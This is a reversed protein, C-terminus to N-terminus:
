FVLGVSVTLAGNRASPVSLSDDSFAVDAGKASFLLEPQLAFDATPQYTLFGGGSFLLRAETGPEDDGYLKAANLGARLGARLEQAQTPQFHALLIISLAAIATSRRVNSITNRM